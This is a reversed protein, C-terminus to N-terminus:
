CVINKNKTKTKRVMFRLSPFAFSVFHIFIRLLHLDNRMQKEVGSRKIKVVVLAGKQRRRNGDGEGEGEGEGEGGGKRERDRDREGEDDEKRRLRARYVQSVCGSGIPLTDFEEFIDELTEITM